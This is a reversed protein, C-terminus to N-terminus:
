PMLAAIRADMAEAFSPEPMTTLPATQVFRHPQEHYVRLAL